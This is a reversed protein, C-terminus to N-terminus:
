FKAGWTTVMATITVVLLVTDLLGFMRLKNGTREIGSQDGSDYAAAREEGVPGFVRIGVVAGVIVTIFGLTVFLSGFSYDRDLVLVIGTILSLIAAPTYLRTGMLVTSRMWEAAAAGGVREMRPTVVVQTVNAGFWTAAALVHIVLVADM